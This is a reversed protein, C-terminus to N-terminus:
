AIADSWQRKSSAWVSGTASGPRSGTSSSSKKTTMGTHETSASSATRSTRPQGTPSSGHGVGRESGDPYAGGDQQVEDDQAGPHQSPAAEPGGVRDDHDELQEGVPPEGTPVDDAVVLRRDEARPQDVRRDLVQQEAEREHQLRQGPPHPPPAPEASSADARGSIRTAAHADRGCSLPYPSACGRGSRCRHGASSSTTTPASWRTSSGATSGRPRACATVAPRTSTTSARLLTGTSSAPERSRSPSSSGSRATRVLPPSILLRSESGPSTRRPSTSVGGDCTRGCTASSTRSSSRRVSLVLRPFLPM